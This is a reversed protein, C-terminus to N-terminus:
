PIVVSGFVRSIGLGEKCWKYKSHFSITHSSEGNYPIMKVAIKGM